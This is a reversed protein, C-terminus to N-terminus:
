MWWKCDLGIIETVFPERRKKLVGMGNGNGNGDGTGNGESQNVRVCSLLKMVM